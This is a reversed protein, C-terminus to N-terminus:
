WSESTVEIRVSNKEQLDGAVDLPVCTLSSNSCNAKKGFHLFPATHQYKKGCIELMFVHISQAMPIVSRGNDTYDSIPTIGLEPVPSRPSATVHGSVSTVAQKCGM